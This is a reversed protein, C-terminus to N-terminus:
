TASNLSKITSALRELALAGVANAQDPMRDAFDSQDIAKADRSRFELYVADRAFTTARAKIKSVAYTTM